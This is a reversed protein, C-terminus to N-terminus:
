RPELIKKSGTEKKLAKGEKRRQKEVKMDKPASTRLHKIHTPVFKPHPVSSTLWTAALTPVTELSSMFANLDPWESDIGMVAARRLGVARSLLLEAGVPLPVLKIPSQPQLSNYAAVLHPLHDILIPPNIDARCVLIVQLSCSHLAQIPDSTTSIVTLRKTRIQSELQKTVENIGIVLHQLIIPREFSVEELSASASSGDIAVTQADNFGPSQTESPADVLRKKQPQQQQQDAKPQRKRKRKLQHEAVGDLTALTLALIASQVNFPVTPWQIRYPNDLLGRFVVKRAGGDRIKARNSVHNHTRATKNSM